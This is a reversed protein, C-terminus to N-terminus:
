RTIRLKSAGQALAHDRPDKITLNLQHVSPDKLDFSIKQQKTGAAPRRTNVFDKKYIYNNIFRETSNEREDMPLQTLDLDFEEDDTM